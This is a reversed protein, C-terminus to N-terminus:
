PWGSLAWSVYGIGASAMNAVLSWGVARRLGFARLYVAEAAFAFGELWGDYAARRLFSEPDDFRVGRPAMWAEGARWLAPLVFWVVPHTMASAGFAILARRWLSRPSGQRRFAYLYIPIEIAQTLVFAYIWRALM